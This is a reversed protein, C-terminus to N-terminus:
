EGDNDPQRIFAGRIVWATYHPIAIGLLTFLFPHEMAFAWM